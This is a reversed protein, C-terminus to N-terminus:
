FPADDSKKVVRKKGPEFKAATVLPKAPELDASFPRAVSKKAAPKRTTPRKAAKKAPAKKAAAQKPAACTGKALEAGNACTACVVAVTGVWAALLRKAKM